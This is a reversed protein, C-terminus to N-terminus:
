RKEIVEVRPPKRLIKAFKYDFGDENYLDIIKQAVWKPDLMMSMDRSSDRWFDTKMGSPAAVLVKGVRLDLSVSNGFMGLGAKVTTYAPEFLRPTWQSTSTIAIFGSLSSQYKLIRNLINIPAVLGVNLM